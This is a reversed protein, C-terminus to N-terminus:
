KVSGSHYGNTQFYSSWPTSNLSKAKDGINKEKQIYLIDAVDM